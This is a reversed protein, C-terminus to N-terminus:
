QLQSCAQKSSSVALAVYGLHLLPHEAAHSLRMVTVAYRVNTVRVNTVRVNTVRVLTSGAAPALMHLIRSADLMSSRQEAARTALM